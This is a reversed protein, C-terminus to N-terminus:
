KQESKPEVMHFTVHRDGNARLRRVMQVLRWTEIWEDLTQLGKTM